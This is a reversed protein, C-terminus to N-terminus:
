NNERLFGLLYVDIYQGNAWRDSRLTGELKFDVKEFARRARPNISLVYAYIKHLNLRSFAYECVLRIAESGYGKGIAEHDGILIRLEAKSHRWDIAWLWVNGIHQNSSLTEIAFFVCDNRGVLTTYWHEHDQESVPYARDLLRALEVDNVWSRTQDMHKRDFARLVLTSGTIM